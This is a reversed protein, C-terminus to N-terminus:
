VFRGEGKAFLAQTWGFTNRSSVVRARVYLEGPRLTYSPELTEDVKLVAGGKGIFTTRYKFAGIMGWKKKPKGQERIRLRLTENEMSLDELEVGTSAYFDGERLATIIGEADREAPRVVVWGRGPNAREPGWNQFHHADDSAIGYIIRGESLISDWIEETSPRGGGGFNHTHPHGNFIEMHRLGTVSRIYDVGISWCYNPHNLHPFGGATHIGDIVNQLVEGVAAGGQIGVVDRTGIGNVHVVYRTDGDIFQDSVEEGPILVFPREEHRESERDFEDQLTGLDTLFNHDSIVAFDYGHDRFWHAAEGPSSDGDSNLSHTHTNGKYWIKNM